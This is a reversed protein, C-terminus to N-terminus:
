WRVQYKIWAPQRRKLSGLVRWPRKIRGMEPVLTNHWLFPSFDVLESCYDLGGIGQISEAFHDILISRFLFITFSLLLHTHNRATKIYVLVM